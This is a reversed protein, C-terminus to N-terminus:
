LLVPYFGDEEHYAYKGGEITTTIPETIDHGSGVTEEITTIPHMKGTREFKSRKNSSYDYRILFKEHCLYEIAAKTPQNNQIIKKPLNTKLDEKTFLRNKFRSDIEKLFTSIKSAPDYISGLHIAHRNGKHNIVFCTIDYSDKHTHCFVYKSVKGHIKKEGEKILFPSSYKKPISEEISSLVQKNFKISSVINNADHIKNQPLVITIGDESYDRTILLKYELHAIADLMHPRDRTTFTGLFQRQELAYSSKLLNVLVIEEYKNM